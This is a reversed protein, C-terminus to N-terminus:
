KSISFFTDLFRVSKTGAAGVRKAAKVTPRKEERGVASFNVDGVNFHSRGEDDLGEAVAVGLLGGCASKAAAHGNGSGAASSGEGVAVAAVDNEVITFKADGRLDGSTKGLSRHEAPPQVANLMMAVFDHHHRPRCHHDSIHGDALAPLKYSWGTCPANNQFAELSSALMTSSPARM